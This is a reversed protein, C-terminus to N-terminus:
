YSACVCMASCLLWQRWKRVDAHHSGVICHHFCSLLHIQFEASVLVLITWNLPWINIGCPYFVGGFFCIFALHLHSAEWLLSKVCCYTECCQDCSQQCHFCCCIFCQCVQFFAKILAWTRLYESREVCSMIWVSKPAHRSCSCEYLKLQCLFPCHHRRFWFPNPHAIM